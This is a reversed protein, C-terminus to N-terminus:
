GLEFSSEREKGLDEIYAKSGNLKIFPQVINIIADQDFFSQTAPTFNIPHKLWEAYTLYPSRNNVMSM